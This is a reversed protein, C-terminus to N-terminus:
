RRNKTDIRRQRERLVQIKGSVEGGGWVEEEGGREMMETTRKM